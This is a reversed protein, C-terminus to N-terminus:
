SWMRPILYRSRDWSQGQSATPSQSPWRDEKVKLKERNPPHSRGGGALNRPRINCDETRGQEQDTRGRTNWPWLQGAKELRCERDGGRPTVQSSEWVGQTLCSSLPTVTCFTIDAQNLIGFRNPALRQM